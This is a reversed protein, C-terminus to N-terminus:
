KPVEGDIIDQKTIGVIDKDSIHLPNDLDISDFRTGEARLIQDALLSIREMTKKYKLTDDAEYSRIASNVLAQLDKLENLQNEM